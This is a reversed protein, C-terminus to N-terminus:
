DRPKQRRQYKKKRVPTIVVKRYPGQGSSHTKVGKFQKLAMHIIRRERAPMPQLSVARGTRKVKIALREAMAALSKKRRERYGGAELVVRYNVDPDRRRLCLNVLYELADLTQGEKGIILSIDDGSINVYPRSTQEMIDAHGSLGSKELIENTIDRALAVRKEIAERTLGSKEETGDETSLQEKLEGEEEEEPEKAYMTQSEGESETDGSPEYEKREAMQEGSEKKEPEKDVPVQFSAKIKAKKGGLGFLGTSGRTIIEVELDDESCGFYECAAKIAKDVTKEEFERTEVKTQNM